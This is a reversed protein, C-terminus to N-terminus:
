RIGKFPNTRKVGSHKMMEDVIDITAARQMKRLTSNEVRRYDLQNSDEIAQQLREQSSTTAVFWHKSCFPHDDKHDNACGPYMCRKM